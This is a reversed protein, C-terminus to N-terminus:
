QRHREGDGDGRERLVALMLLVAAARLRRWRMKRRPRRAARRRCWARRCRRRMSRSRSARDGDHRRRRRLMRDRWTRGDRRGDRALLARVDIAVRVPDAVFALVVVVVAIAHTTRVRVAV